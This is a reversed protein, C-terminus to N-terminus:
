LQVARRCGHLRVMAWTGPPWQVNRDGRRWALLAERYALEFARKRDAADKRAQKDTSAFTPNLRRRTERTKPASFPDQALIRAVGLFKTREEITTTRSQRRRIRMLREMAKERGRVRAQVREDAEAASLGPPPVLKLTVLADWAKGTLYRCSPKRIKRTEGFTWNASTVGPWDTSHRVRGAAVPNTITYAIKAIITPTGILEVRSYRGDEWFGGWRGIEAGVAKSTQLILFHMADPLRAGVDTLVLHIHNSMAVWGHFQLQYRSAALGLLYTVINNTSKSPRLFFRRDKCRRSVLYTKNKLVPRPRM